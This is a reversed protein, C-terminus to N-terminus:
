GTKEPPWDFYQACIQHLKSRNFPYLALVRYLCLSDYTLLIELVIGQFNWNVYLLERALTSVTILTFKSRHVVDSDASHCKPKLYADIVKLFQNDIPLDCKIGWLHSQGKKKSNQIKKVLPLGESAFRQLVASDGISKM